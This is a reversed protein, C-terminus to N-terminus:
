SSSTALASQYYALLQKQENEWILTEAATLANQAKQQYLSQNEWFAQIVDALKQPSRDENGLVLGCDSELVLKRMEPLDSVIVPIGAQLYDYVKNPSAYHYNGGRDEEISLGIHAQPTIGALKEFPVFGKLFIRDKWALTEVEEAIREGIDGKGIVVLQFEELFELTAVMLELGRGVNLAGQYILTPREYKEIEPLKKRTPLNRIVGVERSYKEAYIRSISHNVTYMLDAKPLLWKELRLWIARTGKREILEPVETFYEHSDYVLPVRKWRSVLFNALLTDLDNANLLSVKQRLLFFFLRFNYELYFWKGKHFWCTLRHTHYQRDSLVKSSPLIRGVVHVEHGAECLTSAIRHIRQDGHLDNIVSLYIITPSM